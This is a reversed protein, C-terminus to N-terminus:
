ELPMKKEIVTALGSTLAGPTDCFSMYVDRLVTSRDLESCFVDTTPVLRDVGNM